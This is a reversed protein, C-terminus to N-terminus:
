LVCGKVVLGKGDTCWSPGPGAIALFISKTPSASFRRIKAIGYFRNILDRQSNQESRAVLRLSVGNLLCGISGGFLTSGFPYEDCTSPGSFASRNNCPAFNNYWGGDEREARFLTPSLPRPTMTLTDGLGWQADNIHEATDPLGSAAGTYLIPWAYIM